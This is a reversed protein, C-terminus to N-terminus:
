EDAYRRLALEDELKDIQRDKEVLLNNFKALCKALYVITHQSDQIMEKVYEPIDKDDIPDIM